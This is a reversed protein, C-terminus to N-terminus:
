KCKAPDIKYVAPGSVAKAYAQLTDWSVCHCCLIEGGAASFYWALAAFDFAKINPLVLILTVRVQEKQIHRIHFLM